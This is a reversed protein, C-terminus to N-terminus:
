ETQRIKLGSFDDQIFNEIFDTPPDTDQGSLMKQYFEERLENLFSEVDTSGKEVYRNTIEAVHELTPSAQFAQCAGLYQQIYQVMSLIHDAMFDQNPESLIYLYNMAKHLVDNQDYERRRNKSKYLGMVKDPGLTKFTQMQENVEFERNALLMVAEGIISKIEDPFLFLFRVAQALKPQRDYWRKHPANSTTM